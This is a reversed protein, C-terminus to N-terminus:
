KGLHPNGQSAYSTRSFLGSFPNSFNSFDQNGFNSVANSAMLTNAGAKNTVAGSIM